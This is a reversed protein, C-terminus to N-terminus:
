IWPIIGDL